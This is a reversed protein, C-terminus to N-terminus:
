ASKKLRIMGSTNVSLESAILSPTMQVTLPEFCIAMNNTLKVESCFLENKDFISVEPFDSIPM